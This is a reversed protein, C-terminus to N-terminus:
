SPIFKYDKKDFRNLVLPFIILEAYLAAILAIVTLLGFLHVTKLSGFIMISYGAILVASALLISSGIHNMTELQAEPQTRGQMRLHKYHYIFHITDDICISLVIAAICASATDLPIGGWGMTGLMIIVPILNAITALLTLKLNRIFMLVLVFIMVGSMLLSNVQSTTVYDVIDAYMPQYGSPSVKASRGFVQRGMRLLTDTKRNLKKASLMTGFLTIRGTQSAEHVFNAYLKPYYVPLRNHITSLMSRSRYMNKNLVGYQATLAAQYFSHFGFVHGAGTIKRASDAFSVASRIIATDYLKKGKVPTVVFELPMYPGWLQEIKEHDKVVQNNKPFYGLTYTDSKLLFLGAISIMILFLSLGAYLKKHRLVAELIRNVVKRASFLTIQSPSSLPLFIVGFVYTFVLCFFIGIATFLGFQQLIAMPSFLLSLFGAMTTLTTFFCPAFVNKLARLAKDKKSSEEAGPQNYENLIHMIDMIGLVILISPILVTMLNLQLGFLGYLGITIYTSVAITILAYALLLFKRYIWLLLVFMTLYGIGLFFGFDANSLANLGEYVIGVGGFYTQQPLLHQHVTQKVKRLIDGRRNDFYKNSKFAILFRAATYNRNFLQEKLAPMAALDLNVDKSDSSETLLPKAHIGFLDTTIVDANGAGTVLQVEPIAELAKTMAVFSSFYKKTLLTQNDHVILIVVEDNGFKEHFQRYEKIAPDDKLFWITLSNNVKIASRVFPWLFWCASMSLLLLVFRFRYLSHM